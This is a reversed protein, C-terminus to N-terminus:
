TLAAVVEGIAESWHRPKLGYEHRIRDTLLRSNQPRRAPTPYESTKIPTVAASPGGRASSAAFVADALESWTAEGDNVFHFTGHSAKRDAVLRLTIQQLARALDGASTPCGRQDSVVRVENREGALRLMTKVFNAGIPSALWASRVIVHRPNATRVGQEGGEKSAGYVNIPAVPDHELYPEPKDGAFVYDTSVHVIPIGAEATLSALLAPAVANVTWAAAVETEARDVATYAGCSVVAAWRHESFVREISQPDSLDFESRSPSHVRAGEPWQLQTLARGVQGTGGTVLIDM